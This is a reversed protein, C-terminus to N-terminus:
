LTPCNAPLPNTTPYFICLSQRPRTYAVDHLTIGAKAMVSDIQNNIVVNSFTSCSSGTPSPYSEVDVYVNACTFL